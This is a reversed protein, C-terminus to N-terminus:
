GRRAAASPGDHEQLVPPSSTRTSGSSTTRITPLRSTPWASIISVTPTGSATAARRVLTTSMYAGAIYPSMADFLERTWRINDPSDSRDDWQSLILCDYQRARHAFATASPAVRSAAGTIHQLGIGTYPSPATASFRLITDIAESPLDAV